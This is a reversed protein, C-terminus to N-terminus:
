HIIKQRIMCTLSETRLVSEIPPIAVASIGTLPTPLKKGKRVSDDDVMFVETKSIPGWEQSSIGGIVYICAEVTVVGASHRPVQLDAKKQWENLHINYVDVFGTSVLQNKNFRSGWCGGVVWLCKQAVVASCYARAIRLPPRAIWIKTIPDFSLVSDLVPPEDDLDATEPLSTLGGIVWIFGEYCVASLGMRPRCMPREMEWYDSEPIYVEVSAVVRGKNDRGGIAYVRGHITVLAHHARACIMDRRQEWNKTTLDLVFTRGTPVMEGCNRTHPDYGGTIYIVNNLLVSAHHNRPEPLQGFYEWRDRLVHYRIVSMGIQSDLPDRPDLGGTVVITPSTNDIVEFCPRMKEAFAPLNYVSRLGCARKTKLCREELPLLLGLNSDVQPSLTVFHPNRNKRLFISPYSDTCLDVDPGAKEPHPPWQAYKRTNLQRRSRHRRFMGQIMSAARNLIIENPEQTIWKSGDKIFKESLVGVASAGAIPLPLACGELLTNKDLDFIDNESLPEQEACNMGGLIYIRSGAKALAVAHKCTPLKVRTKWLCKWPCYVDVTEISCLSVSSYANALGGWVWLEKKVSVATCFARRQQLPPKKYWRNQIPDYSLFYDVIFPTRKDVKSISVGGVVYILGDLCAAGSGMVPEPMPKVVTWQDSDPKYVEVCSIIEKKSNQGGIIVIREDFAAAAHCARAYYMDTRRRWRKSSFTLEFVTATPQMESNVIELPNYGGFVYIRGHFYVTTHYNRPEPMTGFYSWKDKIPQYCLMVGGILYDRPKLPNIGGTCLIVPNEDDCLCKTLPMDSLFHTCSKWQRTVNVRERAGLCPMAKILGLYPDICKPFYAM